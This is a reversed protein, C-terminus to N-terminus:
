RNLSKPAADIYALIKRERWFMMTFYLAPIMCFVASGVPLAHYTHPLDHPFLSYVIFSLWAGAMWLKSRDVAYVVVIVYAFFIAADVFGGTHAYTMGLWSTIVVWGYKAVPNGIVHMVGVLIMSLPIAWLNLSGAAAASAAAFTLVILLLLVAISQVVLKWQTKNVALNRWWVAQVESAALASWQKRHIAWLLYLGIPVDFLICAMPLDAQNAPLVRPFFDWLPHALWALALYYPSVLMGLTALLLYVTLTVYEIPQNTMLYTNGLWVTFGVWALMEARKGLFYLSAIVALSFPFACAILLNAKMAYGIGFGALVVLLVVYAAKFAPKVSYSQISAVSGVNEVNEIQMESAQENQQMTDM